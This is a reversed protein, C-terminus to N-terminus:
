FYQASTVIGGSTAIVDESNFMIMEIEPIEFKKM